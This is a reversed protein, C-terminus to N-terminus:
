LTREHHAQRVVGNAVLHILALVPLQCLAHNSLSVMFPNTTDSQSAAFRM